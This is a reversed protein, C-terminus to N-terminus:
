LLGWASSSHPDWGMTLVAGQLEALVERWSPCSVLLVLLVLLVLFM